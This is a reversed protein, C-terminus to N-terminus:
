VFLPLLQTFPCPGSGFIERPLAGVIQGAEAFFRILEGVLLNRLSVGVQQIPDALCRLQCHTPSLTFVFLDGVRDGVGVAPLGIAVGICDTVFDFQSAFLGKWGAIRWGPSTGGHLIWARPM